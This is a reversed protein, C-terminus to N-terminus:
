GIGMRFPPAQVRGGHDIETAKLQRHLNGSELENLLHQEHSSLHMWSQLRGRGRSKFADQLVLAQRLRSKARDRRSRAAQEELTLGSQGRVSGSKRRVEGADAIDQHASVADALRALWLILEELCHRARVEENSFRHAHEPAGSPMMNFGLELVAVFFARSGFTNHVWANHFSSRKRMPLKKQRETLETRMWQYRLINILDRLEPESLFHDEHHFEARIKLISTMNTILLRTQESVSCEETGEKSMGAIASQLDSYHNRAPAPEPSAETEKRDFPLQSAWSTPRSHTRVFAHLHICNGLMERLCKNHRDGQEDVRQTAQLWAFIEGCETVHTSYLM